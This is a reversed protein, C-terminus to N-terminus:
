IHLKNVRIDTVVVPFSKGIGLWNDHLGTTSRKFSSCTYDIALEPWVKILPQLIYELM